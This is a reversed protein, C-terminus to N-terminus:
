MFEKLDENFKYALTYDLLDKFKDEYVLEKYMLCLYSAKTMKDLEEQQEKNEADYHSILNNSNEVYAQDMIHLKRFYENLIDEDVGSIKNLPIIFKHVITESEFVGHHKFEALSINEDYINNYSYVEFIYYSSICYIYRCEYLRKDYAGEIYMLIEDDNDEISNRLIENYKYGIAGKIAALTITNSKISRIFKDITKLIYFSNINNPAFILSPLARNLANFYYTINIPDLGIDEVRDILEIVPVVCIDYWYNNKLKNLKIDIDKGKTPSFTISLDVSHYKHKDPDEEDIKVIIDIDYQKSYKKLTKM